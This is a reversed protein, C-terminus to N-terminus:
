GLAGAALNCTAIEDTWVLQLAICMAASESLEITSCLSEVDHFSISVELEM